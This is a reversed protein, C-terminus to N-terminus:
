QLKNAEEDTIGDMWGNMRGDGKKLDMALKELICEQCCFAAWTQM